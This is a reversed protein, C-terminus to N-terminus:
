QIEVTTTRAVGPLYHERRGHLSVYETHIVFNFLQAATFVSLSDNIEMVKDGDDKFPNLQVIFVPHEHEAILLSLRYDNPTTGDCWLSKCLRLRKSQCIM